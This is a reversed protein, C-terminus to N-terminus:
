ITADLATPLYRVIRVTRRPIMDDATAKRLEGVLRYHADDLMRRLHRVRHERYSPSDTAGFDLRIHWPDAEFGTQCARGGPTDVILEVALQVPDNPKAALDRVRMRLGDLRPTPDDLWGLVAERVEPVQDLLGHRDQILFTRRGELRDVAALVALAWGHDGARSLVSALQTLRDALKSV